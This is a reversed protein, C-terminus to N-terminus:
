LQEGRNQQKEETNKKKSRVILVIAAALMALISVLQSVRFPGAYLSDTRMGEVISRELAYLLVYTFFADGKRRFFRKKEGYLLFIVILACWVSEYFFTAYYWAGDIQVTMPFFQLAANEVLAGHAEQNLFNGWRGIAQGLPICPAALDALRLFSIKKVAAYIGGTLLGAIVGGYVALGGERINFIRWLPGASFHDWSFAVYYLRAGLIAAPICWLALDLATDKPLGYKAERRQALYLALAIGTVILVGYWHISLGFLEIARRSIRIM